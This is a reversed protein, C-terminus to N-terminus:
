QNMILLDAPIYKGNETNLNSFLKTEKPYNMISSANATTIANQQTVSITNKKEENSLTSNNPSIPMYNLYTANPLTEFNLYIDLKFCESIPPAGFVYVMQQFKNKKHAYFTPGNAYFTDGSGLGEDKTYVLDSLQTMTKSYEEYSNDVPFYVMRIGNVCNTEQHYYSDIALDFDSYKEIASRTGYSSERFFDGSTKNKLDVNLGPKINEDFIISGGIVGSAIDMRGIYKVILSASVLRYQNYLDPIGQGINLLKFELGDAPPARGNLLDDNCFYLTSAYNLFFNMPPDRLDDTYVLQDKLTSSYIFFPNFLFFLNGKNNTKLNISNHLQFSCTPIPLTSPIKCGKEIEPYLLARLYSDTRQNKYKLLENIINDLAELNINKSNVTNYLRTLYYFIKEQSNPNYTNIM